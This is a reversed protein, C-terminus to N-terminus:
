QARSVFFPTFYILPFLQSFFLAYGCLFLLLLDRQAAPGFPFVFCCCFFFMVLYKLQLSYAFACMFLCLFINLSYYFFCICLLIFLSAFVVATCVILRM